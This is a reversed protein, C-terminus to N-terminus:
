RTQSSVVGSSCAAGKTWGCRPMVGIKIECTPGRTISAVNDVGHGPGHVAGPQRPVYEPESRPGYLPPMGFACRPTTRAPVAEPALHILTSIEWLGHNPDGTVVRNDQGHRGRPERSTAAALSDVLAAGLTRGCVRGDRRRDRLGQNRSRPSIRLQHPSLRLRRAIHAHTALVARGARREVGGRLLLVVVVGQLRHQLLLAGTRREM